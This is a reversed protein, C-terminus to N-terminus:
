ELFDDCLEPIVLETMQVSRDFFTRLLSRSVTQEACHDAHTALSRYPDALLHLAPSLM